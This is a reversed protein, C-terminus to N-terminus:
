RFGRHPDFCVLKKVRLLSWVGFVCAKVMNITSVVTRTMRNEERPNSSRFDKDGTNGQEEELEDDEQWSQAALHADWVADDLAFSSQASQHM